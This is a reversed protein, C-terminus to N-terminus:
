MSVATQVLAVEGRQGNVSILDGDKLLATANQTGLVAPIGYERAVIAAHSLPGGTDAVVACALTFLPTWAPDTYPCVLVDGPQLKAFDAPGTIIRAPGTAFGSSGPLGKLAAGPAHTKETQWRARWSALAQPRIQRRRQTLQAIEAPQNRGYLTNYLEDLTLYIILDTKPLFGAAQLRRAAEDVGRRAQLFGEEITYLTAERAIHGARYQALLKEFLPRLRGPLRSLVNHRLEDYPQSSHSRRVKDARLIVALTALLTAPAESWSRNSFPLYMKMTRAGHEALFLDVKELFARGEVTQALAAMLADPETQLLIEKLQPRQGAEAALRHLSQDIVATKYPLDALLEIVTIARLARSWSLLLKLLASRAIAPIIAEDFRIAGVRSTVAVGNQIFAALEQNSLTAPDIQRLAHIEAAFGPQQERMWREPDSKLKQWLRGFSSLIRRSLRPRPPQITPIGDADLLIIKHAAPLALGYGAVANLLQQYSDTV